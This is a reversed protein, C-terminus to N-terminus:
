HGRPLSRPGEPRCLLVGFGLSVGSGWSSHWHRGGGVVAGGPGWVQAGGPLLSMHGSHGRCCENAKETRNESAMAMFDWRPKGPPKATFFGGAFAPSLPETGPFPLDGPSSIAVWELIRVQLIGRVSSGPLSSVMPNRLTPCLQACVCVRVCLRESVSM